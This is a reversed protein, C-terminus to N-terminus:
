QQDSGGAPLVKLSPDHQKVRPAVFTFVSTLTQDDSFSSQSCPENSSPENRRSFAHAEGDFTRRVISIDLYRGTLTAVSLPM